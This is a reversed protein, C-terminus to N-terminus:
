GFIYKNRNFNVDDDVNVDNGIEKIVFYLLFALHVCNHIIRNQMRAM